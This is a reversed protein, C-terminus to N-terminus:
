SRAKGKGDKGGQVILYDCAESAPAHLTSSRGAGRLCALELNRRWLAGDLGALAAAFKPNERRTVKAGFGNNHAGNV